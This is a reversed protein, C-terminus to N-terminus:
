KNTQKKLKELKRRKMVHQQSLVCVDASLHFSDQRPQCDESESFPTFPFSHPVTCAVPLGEGVVLNIIKLETLNIKLGQPPRTPRHSHFHLHTCVWFFSSFFSTPYTLVPLIVISLLPPPRWIGSTILLLTDELVGIIIHTM